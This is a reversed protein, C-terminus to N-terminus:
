SRPKPHKPAGPGCRGRDGWILNQCTQKEGKRELWCGLRHATLLPATEGPGGGAPTDRPSPAWNKRPAEACAAGRVCGAGAGEDEPEGSYSPAVVAVSMGSLWYSAEAWVRRMAEQVGTDGGEM